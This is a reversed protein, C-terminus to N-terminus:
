VVAQREDPPQGLDVAAKFGDTAGRAGCSCWRAASLLELARRSRRSPRYDALRAAGGIKSARRHRAAAIGGFGDRHEVQESLKEIAPPAPDFTVIV